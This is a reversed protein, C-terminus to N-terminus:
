YITCHTCIYFIPFIFISSLYKLSSYVTVAGATAGAMIIYVITIAVQDNIFYVSAAILGYSIASLSTNIFSYRIWRKINKRNPPDEKVKSYLFVRFFISSLLIMIWVFLYSKDLEEYVQIGLVAGLVVSTLITIKISENVTTIQKLLISTELKPVIM